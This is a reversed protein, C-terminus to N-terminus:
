WRRIGSGRHYLIITAAGIIDVRVTAVLRVAVDGVSTAIIDVVYAVAVGSCNVDFIYAVVIHMVVIVAYVIGGAICLMTLM